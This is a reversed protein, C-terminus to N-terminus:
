HEASTKLSSECSMEQLDSMGAEYRFMGEVIQIPNGYLSMEQLSSVLTLRCFLVARLYQFWELLRRNEFLRYRTFLFTIIDVQTTYKTVM